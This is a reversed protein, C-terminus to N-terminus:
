LALEELRCIVSVLPMLCGVFTYRGGFFSQCSRSVLTTQREMSSHDNINKRGVLQVVGIEIQRYRYPAWACRCLNVSRRSFKEQKAPGHFLGKLSSM